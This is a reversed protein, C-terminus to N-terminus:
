SGAIRELESRSPNHSVIQGSPDILLSGYGQELHFDDIIKSAQNGSVNFQTEEKLGDRRVIEHFLKESKDFNVSLLDIKSNIDDEDIWTTYDNATKRSDGDSTSWFNILVYKGEKECQEIIRDIEDVALTPMQKGISTNLSTRNFGSSTILLGIFLSCILITQKINGTM